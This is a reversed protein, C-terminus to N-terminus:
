HDEGQLINVPSLQLARAVDAAEVEQAETGVVATEALQRKRDLRDNIVEEVTDPYFLRHVTVPLTQGRRFARATAQDEVAPNWELTYHIVHNAATINLGTGAARPNLILIAAGTVNSFRDVVSQRKEVPTRGDIQWSPVSFRASLDRCLLDSMATFSTFIIAKERNLVIEELIELLRCFKSSQMPSTHSDEVESKLLIPHTCYQRLRLISILTASEGYEDLIKQRLLEYEGVEANSMNVPQPIIIKEPLDSAVDAIRRRLMLPSVITELKEASQYDDGYNKDFAERTGLLGPCSFDMISWLDTLRNEVPTGTVAIAVRRKLGKVAVARRTEPNKIAQAEDLIVFGWEIMGLLGQDRVATDYSCVIIGYKKLQSPFGTRGNGSHVHVIMQPSFRAFERRWNELLTAPAIILSPQDWAIKFYSLVAIIQLTKGLGMEDALVGGLGEESINRLWSFGNKQYPYLNAQFGNESLLKLAQDCSGNAPLRFGESEKAATKVWILPSEEKMLELAQGLTILGPGTISLRNLLGQIDLINEPILPYWNDGVIIQDSEPVREISFSRGGSSAYLELIPRQLSVSPMLLKIKLDCPFRNFHLNPLHDSPKANVSIGDIVLKGKFEVRVIDAACVSYNADALKMSVSCDTLIWNEFLNETDERSEGM